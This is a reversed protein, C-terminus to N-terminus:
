PNPTGPGGPQGGSGPIHVKGGRRMPTPPLQFTTEDLTPNVIFHDIILRDIPGGTARDAPAGIAITAPFQLGDVEQYDGYYVSVPAGPRLPNTAPRDIRFELNTRVDVWVKREAGGPLRLSLRYGRRGDVNDIGDLVATIGKAQYDILPGDVVFEGRAFDNEEKSFAKSEPRGDGGPRLKWGHLGDFIRTFHDLQEKLEFRTLNPRKLQMTFPIRQLDKGTGRELHGLWGLTVVKRWAEIGGRAAVNRAIVEDATKAPASPAAPASTVFTALALALVLERM